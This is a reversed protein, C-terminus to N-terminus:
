RAACPPRRDTSSSAPAAGKRCSGILIRAIATELHQPWAQAAADRTHDVVWSDEGGACGPATPHACRYHRLAYGGDDEGLVSVLAEANLLAMDLWREDGDAAYLALHGLSALAAHAAFVQAVESELNYGGHDRDWFDRHLATGVRQARDLRGPDRDLAYAALEAEVAIGQDYNFYRADSVPDGARESPDGYRISRRYLHRDPDYLVTDLWLLTRLAWARHGEDGAAEHLRAFFLAALANSQAPKGEETDGRSTSWWFGGGFKEDWLGSVILFDAVRRAAYVYHRRLDGTPLTEANALLALGTIAADDTFRPGRYVETGTPDSQAYYGGQAYDWLRDLFVFGLELHCREDGLDLLPTVPTPPPRSPVQAVPPPTTPTPASRLLVADAWLQSAVYWEDVLEPVADSQRYSIFRSEVCTWADGLVRLRARTAAQTALARQRHAEADLPAFSRGSAEADIVGISCLLALGLILVSACARLPPQVTVIV